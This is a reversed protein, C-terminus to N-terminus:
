AVLSAWVGWAWGSYGKHSVYVVHQVNLHEMKFACKELLEVKCKQCIWVQPKDELEKMCCKLSVTLREIEVETGSYEEHHKEEPDEKQKM